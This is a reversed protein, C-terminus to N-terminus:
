ETIHPNRLQYFKHEEHKIVGNLYGIEVLGDCVKELCELPLREDFSFLTEVPFGSQEDGNLISHPINEEVLKQVYVSRMISEVKTWFLAGNKWLVKCGTRDAVQRDRPSINGTIYRFNIQRENKRFLVGMQEPALSETSGEELYGSADPLRMDSFGGRPFNGTSSLYLLADKGKTFSKYSLELLDAKAELLELICEQDDLFMLDIGRRAM